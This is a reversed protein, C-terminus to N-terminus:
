YTKLATWGLMDNVKELSELGLSQKKIWAWLPSDLGFELCSTKLATWGLMDKVRELSELGFSYAKQAGM